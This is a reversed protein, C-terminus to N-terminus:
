IADARRGFLLKNNMAWLPVNKHRFLINTRGYVPIVESRAAWFNKAAWDFKLSEGRSFAPLDSQVEVNGAVSAWCQGWRPNRRSFRHGHSKGNQSTLWARSAAAPPRTWHPIDLCPRHPFHKLLIKTANCLFAYLYKWVLALYKESYSSRTRASLKTVLYEKLPLTIGQSCM